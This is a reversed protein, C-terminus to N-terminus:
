DKLNVDAKENSGPKVDFTLGSTSYNAYRDPILSKDTGMRSRVKTSGPLDTELCEVAVQNQGQYSTLQFTGDAALEAGAAHGSPHFFMIRGMGLPKGRYTVKGSVPATPLDIGSHRCGFLAVAVLSTLFCRFM